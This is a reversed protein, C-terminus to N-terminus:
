NKESIVYGEIIFRPFDGVSLKIDINSIRGIVTHENVKFVAMGEEVTGIEILSILEKSTMKTTEAINVGFPRNGVSYGGNFRVVSAM